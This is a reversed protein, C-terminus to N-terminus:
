VPIEEWQFSFWAAAAGSVASTYFATWAGPPLILSGELDFITPGYALETTLAGTSGVGLVHTIVSASPFTCSTDVLAQGVAGVGFFNSRPTGAVTHTVNTSSNYGCMLAIISANPWLVNFGFGAKNVVVNVTSGVPNELALGTYASATLVNTTVIGTQNAANFVNRRYNSEYYRGHLESVILDGLQGARAVVSTGAAISTTSAIPGVQTQIQM